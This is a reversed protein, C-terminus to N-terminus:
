DTYLKMYNEYVKSKSYENKGYDACEFSLQEDEITRLIAKQLADLNGSRVFIGLKGLATEKAGGADFGCIPTGCSLAEICTTPFNEKKSCIVFVDAMSYYKALEQQNETRGLAIVNNDFTENLDDVGILIFKIKENRMRKALEIVNRGGKRPEM